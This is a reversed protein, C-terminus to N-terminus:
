VLLGTMGMLGNNGPGRQINATIEQHLKSMDRFTDRCVKRHGGWGGGGEM